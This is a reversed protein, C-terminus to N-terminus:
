RKFSFAITNPGCLIPIIIAMKTPIAMYVYKVPLPSEMSEGGAGAGLEMSETPVSGVGVYGYINSALPLGNM